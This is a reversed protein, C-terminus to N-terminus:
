HRCRSTKCPSAKVGFWQPCTIIQRSAEMQLLIEKTLNQVESSVHMPCSASHTIPSCHQVNKTSGTSCDEFRGSRSARWSSIAEGMHCCPVRLVWSMSDIDQMLRLILLFMAILTPNHIANSTWYQSTPYTRPLSMKHCLIAYDKSGDLGRDKVNQRVLVRVIWGASDRMWYRRRWPKGGQLCAPMEAVAESGLPQFSAKGDYWSAVAEIRWGANWLSVPSELKKPTHDHSIAASRYIAILKWPLLMAFSSLSQAARLNAAAARQGPYWGLDM